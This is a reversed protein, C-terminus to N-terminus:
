ACPGGAKMTSARPGPITGFLPTAQAWSLAYKSTTQGTTNVRFSFRGTQDKHIVSQSQSATSWFILVSGHQQGCVGSGFFTWGPMGRVDFLNAIDGYIQFGAIPMSGTDRVIYTFELTQAGIRRVASSVTGQVKPGSTPTASIATPTPTPSPSTSSAGLGPLSAGAALALGVLVALALVIVSVFRRNSGIRRVM